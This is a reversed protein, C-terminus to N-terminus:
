YVEIERKLLTDMKQQAQRSAKQSEKWIDYIVYPVEFEIGRPVAYIIGNWGIPVVDGPNAPDEPIELSKKPMEALQQKLSKEEQMLELESQKKAAM